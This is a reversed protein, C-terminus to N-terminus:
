KQWFWNKKTPSPMQGTDTENDPYVAKFLANYFVSIQERLGNVELVNRYKGLWAYLERFADELDNVPSQELEGSARRNARRLEKKASVADGATARKVLEVRV